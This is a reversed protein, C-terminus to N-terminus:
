AGQQIDQAIFQVQSHHFVPAAWLTLAPAARDEDVAFRAHRADGRRRANRATRDCRQVTELGGFAIPQDVREERRPGTLTAEAGRADENTQCPPLSRTCDLWASHSHAIARRLLRQEGM